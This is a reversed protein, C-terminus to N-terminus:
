ILEIEYDTFVEGVEDDSNEHGVVIRLPIIDLNCEDLIEKPMITIGGDLLGEIIRYGLDLATSEQEQDSGSNYMWNIFDATKIQLKKM